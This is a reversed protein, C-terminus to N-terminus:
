IDFWSNTLQALARLCSRVPWRWPLRPADMHSFCILLWQPDRSSFPDSNSYAWKQAWELSIVVPRPNKKRVFMNLNEKGRQYLHFFPLINLPQQNKQGVSATHLCVILILSNWDRVLAARVILHNTITAEPGSDLCTQVTKVWWKNWKASSQIGRFSM